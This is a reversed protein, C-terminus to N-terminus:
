KRLSDLPLFVVREGSHDTPQPCGKACCSGLKSRRGRFTGLLQRGLYVACAVVAVVVILDQMWISMAELREPRDITGDLGADGV